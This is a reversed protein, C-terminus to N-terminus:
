ETYTHELSFSDYPQIPHIVCGVYIGHEKFLVQVNEVGQVRFDSLLCEQVELGVETLMDETTRKGIYETLRSGFEPHLLLAGKPTGLRTILQQKLNNIGEVVKIDGQQNDSLQGETELSIVGKEAIDISYLDLDCGFAYNEIEKSSNNTKNPVQLGETPIMLSDGVKAVTDINQHENLFLDTDIYPYTLGNISVIETWDAGYTAGISQITDGEGVIHMLYQSAM